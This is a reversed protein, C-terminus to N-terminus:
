TEHLRNPRRRKPREAQPTIAHSVVVQKGSNKAYYMALDATHLLAALAAPQHSTKLAAGISATVQIDTAHHIPESLQNSLPTLLKEVVEHTDAQSPKFAVAFEDGGLRAVVSASGFHSRLRAGIQRVVEDGTAHGHQDNIPKLEDIDVVVVAVPPTTRELFLGAQQRFGARNLLGTLEDHTAAHTAEELKHRMRLLRWLASLEVVIAGAGFGCIALVLCNIGSAM